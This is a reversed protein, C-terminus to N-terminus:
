ENESEMLEERLNEYVDRPVPSKFSRELGKCKQAKELCAVNKCIYAGRGPKKGTTDLSFEGEDNKVIRVLEKKGKMEQCGTCKRLPIKKQKM